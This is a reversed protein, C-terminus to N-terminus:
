FLTPQKKNIKIEKVIRILERKSFIKEGKGRIWVRLKDSKIKACTPGSGCNYYKDGGSYDGELFCKERFICDLKNKGIEEAIKWGSGYLEQFTHNIALQLHNYRLPVQRMRYQNKAIITEISKGM